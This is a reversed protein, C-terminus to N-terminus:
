MMVMWTMVDDGDVDDCWMMRESIDGYIGDM